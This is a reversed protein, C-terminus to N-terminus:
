RPRGKVYEVMAAAQRLTTSLALGLSLPTVRAADDIMKEIERAMAALDATGDERRYATM